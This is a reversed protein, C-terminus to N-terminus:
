PTYTLELEKEAFSHKLIITTPFNYSEGDSRRIFIEISDKLGLLGAPHQINGLHDISDSWKIDIENGKHDFSKLSTITAKRHSKNLLTFYLVSKAYDHEGLEPHQIKSAFVVEDSKIGDYIKQSLRHSFFASGAAIVASITALLTTFDIWRMQNLGAKITECDM